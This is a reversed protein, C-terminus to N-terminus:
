KRAEVYVSEDAREFLDLEGPSEITTEGARLVVPDRFGMSTLLRALSAGDYMWMHQRDGAILYRLKDTMSRRRRRALRTREMLKDADGDIMYQEVRMKMDPVVVRIVGNPALVRLAEKLFHKVEDRDFHEVMHSTYIVEASADPLPIRQTVDAWGIDANKKLYNAFGRSGESLFGLKDLVPLVGPKKALRLTLSNDFNDWGPTPTQGCGVNVRKLSHSM